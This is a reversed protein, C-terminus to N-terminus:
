KESTQNEYKKFNSKPLESTESDVEREQQEDKSEETGQWTMNQEQDEKIFFNKVFIVNPRGLGLRKREILGIGKEVDLETLNKIAKQKACGLLDMIEEVTFIIYARKNEDFWGNKVSLSMRDLM